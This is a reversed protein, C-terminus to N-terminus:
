NPSGRACSSRLGRRISMAWAMCSSERRGVRMAEVLERRGHGLGAVAFAGTLDLFRNGDVDWVNV